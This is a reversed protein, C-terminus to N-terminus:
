PTARGGSTGHSLRPISGGAKVVVVAGPQDGQLVLVVGVPQQLLRVRGALHVLLLELAAATPDVRGHGRALEPLRGAVPGPRTLPGVLGVDPLRQAELQGDHDEGDDDHHEHQEPGDEVVLAVGLVRADEGPLPAALVLLLLRGPRSKWLSAILT